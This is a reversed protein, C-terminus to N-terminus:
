KKMEDKKMGDKAMKDMCDKMAADKNMKADKKEMAMKDVKATCDKKMAAGKDDKKMDDAAFAGASVVALCGAFAISVLKKM